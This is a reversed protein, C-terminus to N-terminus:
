TPRPTGPASSTRCAPLPRCTRPRTASTALRSGAFPAPPLHDACPREPHHRDGLAQHGEQGRRGGPADSGSSTRILCTRRPWAPESSPPCVAGRRGRWTSRASGGAPDLRRHGRRLRARVARHASVSTGESVVRRIGYSLGPGRRLNVATTTVRTGTVSAPARSAPRTTLYRSAIYASGGDFRIKTWGDASSVATVTQGATSGM